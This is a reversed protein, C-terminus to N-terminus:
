RGVARRMMDPTANIRYGESRGWERALDALEADIRALAQVAKEREADLRQLSVQPPTVLRLKTQATM